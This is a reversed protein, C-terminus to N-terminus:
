KNKIFMCDQRNKNRLCYHGYGKTKRSKYYYIDHSKSFCSYIWDNYDSWSLWDEFPTAESKFHIELTTQLSNKIIDESKKDGILCSEGGECDFKIMYNKYDFLNHDRWIDGISVCSVGSSDDSNVFRNTLLNGDRSKLTVKNGSKGLAKQVTEIDLLNTNACLYNFSEDFPEYAIIRSKPHLFRMMCSFIGINGGIDVILDFSDQMYDRVKYFDKKVITIIEGKGDKGKTIM